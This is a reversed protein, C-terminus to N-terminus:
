DCKKKEGINRRRGRGVTLEGLVESLLCGRGMRELDAVPKQDGKVEREAECECVELTFVEGDESPKRRNRVKAKGYHFPGQSQWLQLRRNVM